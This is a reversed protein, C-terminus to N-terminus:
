DTIFWTKKQMLIRLSILLLGLCTIMTERLEKNQKRKLTHTSAQLHDANAIFIM